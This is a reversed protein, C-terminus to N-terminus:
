RASVLELPTQGLTPGHKMERLDTRIFWLCVVALFAAVSVMFFSWQYSGTIDFLRGALIPGITGGIANFLMIIGFIKGLSSLGFCTGAVVPVSVIGGGYGIGILAAVVYIAATSKAFLALWPTGILFLTFTMAALVSYAMIILRKKSYKDSLAGFGLRGVISASLLISLGASASGLDLGRDTLFLVFHQSISIVCVHFLLIAACILWFTPTNVAERLTLDQLEPYAATSAATQPAPDGDMSLGLDQPKDKVVFWFIPIVVVFIIFGLILQVLRWDFQSLLYSTVVPGIGGGVATSAVVIGLATGERKKFWKAILMKVTLMSTCAIGIGVLVNMVYYHPLSNMFSFAIKALADCLIGGFIIKKVSLKDALMGIFPSMLGFVFFNVGAGAAVETRSWQFEEIYAPYFVPNNYYALGFCFSVVISAAAVIYWGYFPRV